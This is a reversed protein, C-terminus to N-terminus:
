QTPEWTGSTQQTLEVTGPQAIRTDSAPSTGAWLLTVRAKGTGDARAIAAQIRVATYGSTGPVTFYRPWHQRGIGTIDALWVQRGLQELNHELAPPLDAPSSRDLMQQVTADAGPGDGPALVAAEPVPAYTAAPSATPSATDSPTPQPPTPM